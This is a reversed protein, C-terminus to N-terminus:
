RGNEMTSALAGRDLRVYAGVARAIEERSTMVLLTVPPSMADIRRLVQRVTEEGLGDLTEDLLLLKPHAALARAVALRAAQSSTLRGGSHGLRTFIGQPFLAIEESLGVVSLIDTAEVADIGSHGLELNEIVDGDFVESRGVAAVDRRLDSLALNRINVGSLAIEGETPELAGYVLDVLTSKGTANGGLVAM